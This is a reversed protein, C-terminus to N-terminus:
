ASEASRRLNRLTKRMGDRVKAEFSDVSGFHRQEPELARPSIGEPTERRHTVM